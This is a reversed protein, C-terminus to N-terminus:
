DSLTRIYKFASTKLREVLPADGMTGGTGDIAEAIIAEISGPEIRFRTAVDDLDEDGLELDRQALGVRWVERREAEDIVPLELTYFDRHAPPAFHRGVRFLIVAPHNRIANWVRAASARDMDDLADLGSVCAVMGRLNVRILERRLSDGATNHHSLLQEFDIVALVKGLHEAIGACLSRRGSGPSGAIFLRRLAASNEDLVAALARRKIDDPLILQDVPRDARRVATADGLDGLPLRGLRELLEPAVSLPAFLYEGATAPGSQVLGFQLLPAGPALNIAVANRTESDPAATIVEVLYRDCLPRDSGAVLLRYLEAIEGRLSPAAVILLVETALDDLQFDRVIDFFPSNVGQFLLRRTEDAAAATAAAVRAQARQVARPAHSVCDGVLADVVRDVPQASGGLPSQRGSDWARALALAAKAAVVELLSDVHRHPSAAPATPTLGLTGAREAGPASRDPSEIPRDPASRASQAPHSQAPQSESRALAPSSQDPEAVLLVTEYPSEAAIDSEDWLEGEVSEVAPFDAMDLSEALEPPDDDPLEAVIVIADDAPEVPRIMEDTLRVVTLLPEDPGTAARDASQPRARSPPKAVILVSESADQLVTPEASEPEAAEAAQEEAQGADRWEKRDPMPDATEALVPRDSDPDCETADLSARPTEAPGNRDLAANEGDSKPRFETEFRAVQFPSGPRKAALKVWHAIHGTPPPSLIPDPDPLETPHRSTAPVPVLAPSTKGTDSDPWQVLRNLTTLAILRWKEDPNSPGHAAPALPGFPIMWARYFRARNPDGMVQGAIASAHVAVFWRDAGDLRDLWTDALALVSEAEAPSHCWARMLAFGAALSETPADSKQGAAAKVARAFMEAARERDGFREIWRLAFRRLLVARAGPTTVAAARKDHHAALDTLRKQRGLLEEYLYNGHESQPDHELVQVLLQECQRDDAGAVAAIRAARLLMRGATAPDASEARCHLLDVWDRWGERDYELAAIADRTRSCGPNADLARQLWLRARERQACDLLAEGVLAALNADAASLTVNVTSFDAVALELEGFEAFHDLSGLRRSLQRARSLAQRLTSDGQWVRRYIALAHGPEPILAEVLQALQYLARPRDQRSCQGLMEHEIEDIILNWELTRYANRRPSVAVNM